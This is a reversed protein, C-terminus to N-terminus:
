GSSWRIWGWAAHRHAGHPEGAPLLGAARRLRPLRRLEATPTSWMAAFRIHSQGDPGKNAPYLSMAKHGTNGHRHPTTATAGTDSLCSCRTPSWGGDSMSGTRMRYSMPPALQQRLQEERTYEMKVPRGHRHDPTACIDEILVEQKNRFGGGIRPKIVRHAQGAAGAGPGAMRRRSVAGANSTRIVLRDDRGIPSRLGRSSPRRSFGPFKTNAEFVADATKMAARVDGLEIHHPGGPRRAPDCEAFPTYEPEDHIVPAGAGHEGRTWSRRCSRTSSRSGSWRGSGIEETERGGRVRDGVCRLKRDLSFFNWRAPIPDSQGATSHVVRPFM